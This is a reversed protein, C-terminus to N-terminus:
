GKKGPKGMHVTLKTAKELPKPNTLLQFTPLEHPSWTSTKVPPRAKKLPPPLIVKLEMNWTLTQFELNAEEEEDVRTVAWYLSGTDGEDSTSGPAAILTRCRGDLSLAVGDSSAYSKGRGTVPLGVPAPHRATLRTDKISSTYPALVLTHADFARKTWVETTWTGKAPDKRNVVDLDEVGYM